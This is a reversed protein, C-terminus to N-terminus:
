ARNACPDATATRIANTSRIANKSTSRNCRVPSKRMASKPNGTRFGSRCGMTDIVYGNQKAHVYAHYGNADKGELALEDVAAYELCGCLKTYECGMYQGMNPRCPKQCGLNVEAPARHVGHRLEFERIFTFDLSPTSTDVHNELKVRPVTRLKQLFAERIFREATSVPATSAAERM